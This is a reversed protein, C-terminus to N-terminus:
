EKEYGKILINNCVLFSLLTMFEIGEEFCPFITDVKNEFWFFGEIVEMLVTSIAGVIILVVFVKGRRFSEGGLEKLLKGWISWVFFSGVFVIPAYILIWGFGVEEINTGKTIGTQNEVFKGLYEHLSIMEDLALFAFGFASIQFFFKVFKNFETKLNKSYGLPVFSLAVLLFLNSEIWVAINNERRIDFKRIVWGYKFNAFNENFFLLFAIIIIGISIFVLPKILSSIFESIKM